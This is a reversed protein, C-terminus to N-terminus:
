SGGVTGETGVIKWEGDDISFIGIAAGDSDLTKATDGDDFTDGGSRNLTVTNSGDRRVLFNVGKFGSTLPVTVTRAGGSSDVNVVSHGRDLTFNSSEEKAVLRALRFASWQATTIGSYWV